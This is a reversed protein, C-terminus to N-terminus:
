GLSEEAPKLPQITDAAEEQRRHLGLRQAKSRVSAYSRGLKEAIDHVSVGQEYLRRLLETEKQTWSKKETM